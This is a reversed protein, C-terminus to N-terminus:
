LNVVDKMNYIGPGQKHLWECAMLSGRAFIGRDSARHTLELREGNMLFFVTHEGIVDGGRVSAFGLENKKRDQILNFGRYVFKKKSKDSLNVEEGLSVATGSPTDKKKRHHIELIEVDVDKPLKSSIIRTLNLMLNVGYSMNSARLIKINKSLNKFTIEQSNSFGTTGIVAAKNKYDNLVRILSLTADPVSFDVVVDSTSVCEELNDTIMMNEIKSGVKEHNRKECLSVININHFYKSEKIIQSGMRGTPGLIGLKIKKM